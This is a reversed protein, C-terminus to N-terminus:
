EFDIDSKNGKGDRRLEILVVIAPGASFRVTRRPSM